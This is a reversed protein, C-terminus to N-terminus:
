GSSAIGSSELEEARRLREILRDARLLLPRPITQGLALMRRQWTEARRLHIGLVSAIVSRWQECLILSACLCLFRMFVKMM